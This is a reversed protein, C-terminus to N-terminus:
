QAQFDYSHIERGDYPERDKFFIRLKPLAPQDDDDIRQM